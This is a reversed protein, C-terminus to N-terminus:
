SRGTKGKPTTAMELDSLQLNLAHVSIQIERMSMGLSIMMLLLSIGFIVKGLQMYGAFLVFMCVVCLLLSLVGFVQMNRILEMRHRLSGIQEIIVKDPNIRYRDHLSRILAAIALFRNTYALLLLSIAPFLLAPTTLDIQMNCAGNHGEIQPPWRQRVRLPIVSQQENNLGSM